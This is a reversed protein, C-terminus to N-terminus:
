QGGGCVCLVYLVCFQSARLFQAEGFRLQPQHALLLLRGDLVLQELVFVFVGLAHRAKGKRHHIGLGFVFGGDVHHIMTHTHM